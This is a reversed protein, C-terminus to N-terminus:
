VYYLSHLYDLLLMFYSHSVLKQHSYGSYFKYYCEEPITKIPRVKNFGNIIEIADDTNELKTCAM